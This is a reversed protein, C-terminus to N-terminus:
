WSRHQESITEVGDYDDIEWKIDDPIEIIRISAHEGVAKEIEIEEIADILGKDARYAYANNIDDIGM